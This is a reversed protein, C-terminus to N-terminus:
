QLLKRAAKEEDEALDHQLNAMKTMLKVQMDSVGRNIEERMMAWLPSMTPPSIEVKSTTVGDSMTMETNLAKPVLETYLEKARAQAERDSTGTPAARKTSPVMEVDFVETLKM